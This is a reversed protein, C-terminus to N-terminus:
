LFSRPLNMTTQSKLPVFHSFTIPNHISKCPMTALEPTANNIWKGIERRLKKNNWSIIGEVEPFNVYKGSSEEPAANRKVRRRWYISM